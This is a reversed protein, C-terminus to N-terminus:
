SFNDEDNSLSFPGKRSDSQGSAENTRDAQGATTNSEVVGGFQFANNTGTYHGVTNDKARLRDTITNTFSAGLNKKDSYIRVNKFEVSQFPANDSGEQYDTSHFVGGAPVRGIRIELTNSDQANSIPQTDVLVIDQTSDSGNFTTETSVTYGTEVNTITTFITYTASSGSTIEAPADIRAKININSGASGQPMTTTLLVEHYDQDTQAVSDAYNVRGPLVFGGATLQPNGAVASQSTISYETATKTSIGSSRNRNIGLMGSKGEIGAEGALDGRGKITNYAGKTLQNISTRSGVFYSGIGENNQSPAGVTNEQRIGFTGTGGTDHTEGDNDNVTGANTGVTAGRGSEGEKPYFTMGGVPTITFQGNGALLDGSSPPTLRGQPVTQPPIVPFGGGGGGGSSGGGAGGDPEDPQVPPAPPEPRMRYSDGLNPLQFVRASGSAQSDDRKISISVKEHDQGTYDIRVADIHMQENIGIHDDTYQVTRGPRWVWDKVIQITPCHWLAQGTHLWNYGNRGETSDHGVDHAWETLGLPFASGNNKTTNTNLSHTTANYNAGHQASFWYDVRNGKNSKSSTSNHSRFQLLSDCYEKNFSVVISGTGYTNPLLLEVIGNHEVDTITQGTLWDFNPWDFHRCYAGSQFPADILHIRYKGENATNSNHSVIIRLPEGTTESVLPTDKPIHVIQVAKDLSGIGYWGYSQQARVEYNNTSLTGASYPDSTGSGHYGRGSELFEIDSQAGVFIEDWADGYPDTQESSGYKGALNLYLLGDLNGDLANQRGAFLCGATLSHNHLTNSRADTSTSPLHRLCSSSIYGHRGGALLDSQGSERVVESKISFRSRKGAEYQQIALARAEGSSAIHSADVMKWKSSQADDGLTPEPYDVFSQGGNFFVRVFDATGMARFVSDSVRLNDRNLTLFSSYSPRYVFRGREIQYHYKTITSGSTPNGSAQQSMRLIRSVTKGRADLSSGYSAIATTTSQQTTSINKSLPVEGIDYQVALRSGSLWTKNNGNQWCLRVKDHEYFTNSSATEVFGDIVMMWPLNHQSFGDYLNHDNEVAFSMRNRNYEVTNASSSFTDNAGLNEAGVRIYMRKANPANAEDYDTVFSGYAKWTGQVLESDSQVTTRHEYIGEPRLTDWYSGMYYPSSDIVMVPKYGTETRQTLKTTYRCVFRWSPDYPYRYKATMPHPMVWWWYNDMLEPFGASQVVLEDLNKSGGSFQGIRGNNAYTNLNFFKSTDIILFSGARDEWNHMFNSFNFDGDVTNTYNDSWVAETYPDLSDMQWLDVDDGLKFEIIDEQSLAYILHCSYNETTPYILGFKNKREGGDADASGDNRMDAWLIYIHQFNDKVDRFRGRAGALHNNKTFKCNSLTINGCYLKSMNPGSQTPFPNSGTPLNGQYPNSGSGRPLRHSSAGHHAYPHRLPYRLLGARTTFSYDEDEYAMEAPFVCLKHNGSKELVVYWRYSIPCRQEGTLNNPNWHENSEDTPPFSTNGQMNGLFITDGVNINVFGQLGSVAKPDGSHYDDKNQSPAGSKWTGTFTEWGASPEFACTVWIPGPTNQGNGIGHALLKDDYGKLEDQEIKTIEWYEFNPDTADACSTMKAEDAVGIDIEGSPTIMEFVLGANKKKGNTAGLPAKSPISITPDTGIDQLTSGYMSIYRHDKGDPTTMPIRCSPTIVMTTSGASFDSALTFFDSSQTQYLVADNRSIHPSETGGKIAPIGQPPGDHHLAYNDIIGFVMKFWPSKRIDQMWLAHCPRNRAKSARAEPPIFVASTHVVLPHFNPRIYEVPSSDNIGFVSQNFSQQYSHIIRCNTFQNTSPDFAEYHFEIQTGGVEFHHFEGGHRPINLKKTAYDPDVNSHTTDVQVTYRASANATVGSTLTISSIPIRSDNGGTMNWHSGSANYGLPLADITSGSNRTKGGEGSAQTYTGDHVSFPDVTTPMAPDVQDIENGRLMMVLRDNNNANTISPVTPSVPNYSGNWLEQKHLSCITLNQSRENDTGKNLYQLGTDNSSGGSVMYYTPGVTVINDTDEAIEYFTQGAETYAVPDLYNLATTGAGLYVAAAPKFGLTRYKAWGGTEATVCGVYTMFDAFEASVSGSQCAIRMESFSEGSWPSLFFHKSFDREFWNIRGDYDLDFTNGSKDTASASTHFYSMLRGDVEFRFVAEEDSGGLHLQTFTRNADILLREDNGYFGYKGAPGLGGYTPDRRCVGWFSGKEDELPGFQTLSADYIYVFHNKDIVKVVEIDLGDTSTASNYTFPNVQNSRTHMNLELTDGVKLGHEICHCVIGRGVDGSAQGTWTHSSGDSFGLIRRVSWMSWVNDKWDIVKPSTKWESSDMSVYHGLGEEGDYMQIPHASYLKTRQDYKASYYGEISNITAESFQNVARSQHDLGLSASTRQLRRQGLYFNETIAQAENRRYVYTTSPGYANQGVEWYPMVRDLNALADSAEISYNKLNGRADQKTQIQMVDSMAIVDDLSDNFVLVKWGGSTEKLLNHLKSQNADDEVELKIQGVNDLRMDVVMSEVICEKRTFSPSTSGYSTGVDCVPKTLEHVVGVRDILTALYQPEAQTYEQGGDYTHIDTAASFSTLLAAADMHWGKLDTASWTGGNPKALMDNSVIFKGDIYLDYKQNTFDFVVDLDYWMQWKHNYNPTSISGSDDYDLYAEAHQPNSSTFGSAVDYADVTDPLYNATPLLDTDNTKAASGTGIKLDIEVCANYHNPHIDAGSRKFRNGHSTWDIQAKDYGIKLVYHLSRDSNPLGDNDLHQPCFRMHFTDGDQLMNLHGDYNMVPWLFRRIPVHSVSAGAGVYSGHSSLFETHNQILNGGEIDYLVLRKNEFDTEQVVCIGNGAVKVLDGAILDTYEHYDTGVGASGIIPYTLDGSIWEGAVGGVTGSPFSNGMNGSFVQGAIIHNAPFTQQIVLFPKGSPSQIDASVTAKAGHTATEWAQAAMSPDFIKGAGYVTSKLADFNFRGTTTAMSTFVVKKKINSAGGYEGGEVEAILYSTGGAQGFVHANNTGGFNGAKRLHEENAISTISTPLGYQQIPSRGNTSDTDGSHIYYRGIDTFSTNMLMYSEYKQYNSDFSRGGFKFRNSHSNSDPYENNLISVYKTGLGLRTPDISLHEHSGLNHLFQIDKSVWGSYTPEQVSQTASSPLTYNVAIFDNFRDPWSFRYYPNLRAEGNMPNGWHTSLHNQRNDSGEAVAYSVGFDEWYGALWVTYKLQYPNDSSGTLGAYTQTKAESPSAYRVM